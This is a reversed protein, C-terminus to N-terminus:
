HDIIGIEIIERQAYQDEDDNHQEVPDDRDVVYRVIDGFRAIMRVLVRYVGCSPDTKERQM